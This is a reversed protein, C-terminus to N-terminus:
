SMQRVWAARLGESACVLFSSNNGHACSNWLVPADWPIGALGQISSWFPEWLGYACGMMDRYVHGLQEHWGRHCQGGRRQAAPGWHSRAKSAAPFPGPNGPIDQSSHSDSPRSPAPAPLERIEAAHANPCFVVSGDGM